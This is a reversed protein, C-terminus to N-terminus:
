KVFPNEKIKKIIEVAEKAEKVDHVRIINAGNMLCVSNLISTGNLSGNSNTKLVQSIMSKRSLGVLIPLGFKKLEPIMNVLQYNQQITKGFGFGPDLILQTHGMETIQKIKKEFFSLIDYKFDEYNINKQMSNPQGNMHMIIYPTNYRKVVSLINSDYRGAYIDNIINAGYIISKEAIKSRYTDISTILDPFEKKIKIFLPFLREEEENETIDQSGPRSSIAGFDIIDVGEKIMQIIRKKILSFNNYHNGDYFSDPTINIIGMILPRNEQIKKYFSV